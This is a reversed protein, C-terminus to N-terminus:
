REHLIKKKLPKVNSMFIIPAFILFMYYYDTIFPRQYIVSFLIFLYIFFEKRFQLKNHAYLLLILIFVSFPVIGYNVILDKYSAGGFNYKSSAKKELGFYFDDSKSYREYFQEFNKNMIRNDGSLSGDENIELRTLIYTNLLENTSIIPLFSLIVVAGIIKYKTKAFVLFYGLIMIYFAFSFSFVGAFLVPYNIKKKLDVKNIMLLVGSVTGVVGPEDYYAHFRPLILDFFSNQQVYFPYLIYTYSKSLNLPKIIEYPLNVGLLNVALYSLISPILTISYIYLYLKFVKRIFTDEVLALLVVGVLASYGFLNSGDKYGVFLFFLM